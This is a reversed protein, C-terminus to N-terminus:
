RMGQWPILYHEALRLLRDMLLALAGIVIIGVFVAETDLFQQAQLILWGLGQTSGIIEAAVLTGWAIGSALRIGTLIGPLAGPVIVRVVIYLRSAGLTQAAQIWTRDIGRIASTTSITVVPFTTFWIIVYKPLEGLGFWIVLLPILALAPMPRIMEIVPELAGRVWKRSAMAVGVLIGMASGAGWGVLVRVVSALVNKALELNGGSAVLQGFRDAVRPPSPIVFPDHEILSAVWWIAIVGLLSLVSATFSSRLIRGQMRGYGPKRDVGDDLRSDDRDGEALLQQEVAVPDSGGENPLQMRM